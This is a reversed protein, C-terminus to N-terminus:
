GIIGEKGLSRGSTSRSGIAQDVWTGLHPPVGRADVAEIRIARGVASHRMSRSITYSFMMIPLRARVFAHGRNLKVSSPSLPLILLLSVTVYTLLPPGARSSRGNCRISDCTTLWPRVEGPNSHAIPMRKRQCYPLSAGSMAMCCWDAV